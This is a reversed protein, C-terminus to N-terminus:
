VCEWVSDEYGPKLAPLSGMKYVPFCLHLTAVEKGLLVCLFPPFQAVYRSKWTQPQSSEGAECFGFACTHCSIPGSGLVLWSGPPGAEEPALGRAGKSWGRM